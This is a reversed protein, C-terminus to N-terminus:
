PNIAGRVDEALAAMSDRQFNEDLPASQGRVDADPSQSQQAMRPPYAGSEVSAQGAPLTRVSSKASGQRELAPAGPEVDALDQSESWADQPPTARATSAAQAPAEHTVAEGAAAPIEAFSATEGDDGDDGFVMVAAFFAIGVLLVLNRLKFINM